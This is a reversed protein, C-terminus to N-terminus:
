IKIQSLKKRDLYIIAEAIAINIWIFLYYPEPVSVFAIGFVILIFYVYGKAIDVYAKSVVKNLKRCLDIIFWIFLGVGIYGINVIWTSLLDKTRGMGFGVGTLFYKSGILFHSYFSEWREIGSNNERNVKDFIDDTLLYKISEESYFLFAIIIGLLVVLLFSKKMFRLDKITHKFKVFKDFFAIFYLILIGIFFSTSTSLVGAVLLMFILVVKFKFKTIFLSFGLVPAVFYAFMSPEIAVAYTRVFGGRAQVNGHVGGRFIDDYPLNYKNAVVQYVGLVCIILSSILFSYICKHILEENKTLIDKFLWYILFSYIIYTFQTLNQISFGVEKYINDPTLVYIGKGSLFFPMFMSFSCIFMFFCFLINPKILTLESTRKTLLVKLIYKLILFIGFYYAPQLSFNLYRVNIVSSGTFGSFFVTMFLLYRIDLFLMCIGIPILVYGMLTIEM